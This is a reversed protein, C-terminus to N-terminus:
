INLILHGDSNISYDPQEDGTYSCQLIGDETVNFAVLGATAVAVGSFGREGQPGAPGQIGQPGAPGTEGQIGREGQIGQIGQKGQPGQEGQLGREGQIGQPGAPGTEGQPGAPGTEGQLGREGQPGTEGQLGREGQIGQPGRLSERQEDTLDDFAVTGDAGRPGTEGQLGREGQPGAPGTEGQLGREGQPGAPGQIGQPGAPGTEGQLGREGQPGAPGPPGDFEGSEKARTLTASVIEDLQEQTGGTYLLVMIQDYQSPTPDVPAGTGCRISLECPIVAPTTTHLDGEFVGVRVTRTNSLIPVDVTDGTFVVDTYDVSGGNMYVFRATKAAGTNWEGDFTFQIKYDSNGCVITPTGLVQAHKNTVNVQIIM